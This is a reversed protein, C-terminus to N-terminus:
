PDLYWYFSSKPIYPITRNVQALFEESYYKSGRPFPRPVCIRQVKCGIRFRRVFGAHAAGQSSTLAFIGPKTVPDTLEVAAVEM